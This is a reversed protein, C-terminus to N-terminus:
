IKKMTNSILDSSLFKSNRCLFSDSDFSYDGKTVAVIFKSLFIKDASSFSFFAPNYM